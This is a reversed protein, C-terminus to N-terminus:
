LSAGDGGSGAPPSAPQGSTHELTYLLTKLVRFGLLGCKQRSPTLPVKLLALMDKAQFARLEDLTKGEIHECLMSAAAQSIACGKGDFYAQQVQGDAIQLELCIQDGCIPNRDCHACTPHPLHGKHYPSEYHDLIHEDYIDDIRDTVIVPRVARIDRLYDREAREPWGTRGLRRAPVRGSAWREPVLLPRSM